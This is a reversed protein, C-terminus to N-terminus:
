VSTAHEGVEDVEIQTSHTGTMSEQVDESRQYEYKGIVDSEVSDSGEVRGHLQNYADVGEQVM